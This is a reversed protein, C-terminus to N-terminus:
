GFKPHKSNTFHKGLFTFCILEQIHKLNSTRCDCTPTIKLHTNLYNQGCTTCELTLHVSGKFAYRFLYYFSYFKNQISAYLESLIYILPENIVSHLLFPFQKQFMSLCVFVLLLLRCVSTLSLKSFSHRDYKLMPPQLLAHSKCLCAHCLMHCWALPACATGIWM